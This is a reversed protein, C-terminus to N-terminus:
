KAQEVASCVFDNEFYGFGRRGTIIISNREVCLPAVKEYLDGWVKVKIKATQDAVIMDCRKKGASKGSQTIYEMVSIVDVGLIMLPAQKDNRSGKVESCSHTVMETNYCFVKSTTLSIGLLKEELRNMNLPDDILRGAALEEKVFRLKEQLKEVANGSACIGGQKHPKALNELYEIIKSM